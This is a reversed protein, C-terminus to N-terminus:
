PMRQSTMRKIDMSSIIKGDEWTFMDMGRWESWGQGGGFRSHVWVKGSLGNPQVKEVSVGKEDALGLVALGQKLPEEEVAGFVEMVEMCFGPMLTNNRRWAELYEEPGHLPPLDDQYVKIDPALYMKPRDFDRKNALSHLLEVTQCKLLTVASLYLLSTPMCMSLNNLPNIPETAPESSSDLKTCGGAICILM